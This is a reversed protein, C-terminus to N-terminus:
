NENLLNNFTELIINCCQFSQKAFVEIEDVTFQKSNLTIANRMINLTNKIDEVYSIHLKLAALELATLKASM